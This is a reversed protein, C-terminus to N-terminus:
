KTTIAFKKNIEKLLEGCYESAYILFTEYRNRKSTKEAYKEVIEFIEEFALDHGKQIGLRICKTCADFNEKKRKTIHDELVQHLLMAEKKANMYRKNEM